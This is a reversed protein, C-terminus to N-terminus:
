FSVFDYLEVFDLLPTRYITHQENSQQDDLYWPFLPGTEKQGTTKRSDLERILGKIFDREDKKWNRLLTLAQLISTTTNLLLVAQRLQHLKTRGLQRAHGAKLQQLLWSMQALSYPRLTAYFEEKRNFYSVKRYMEDYMKKYSLSTNGTLVVFNIHAQEWRNSGNDSKSNGDSKSKNLAGARKAAKIAEEVLAYQQGFPYNVPALVIGISLTYKSGTHEYFREALTHAVQLAKDAPTAMVVDDGGILLIDFPFLGKQVPLHARITDGMSEFIADDVLKATKQIEELTELKAFVNGMGNADAYILGLYGKGRTFREFVNFDKPRRTANSFAYLPKNSDKARLVRLIRGWLSEKRLAGTRMTNKVSADEKRKETCVRCYRDGAEDPDDSEDIEDADDSDDAANPVAHVEEIYNEGFIYEAYNAGCSHCTCLFPHSPLAMINAAEIAEQNEPSDARRGNKALQLRWRLLTLVDLMPSTMIQQPDYSAPIPQVAYTISAGGGTREHYLKQVRKGIQEAKDADVVFLASGGHAYITKETRGEDRVIGPTEVRNLFDLISSAGRIEKLKNTGFVYRKIHDTDFALLAQSM